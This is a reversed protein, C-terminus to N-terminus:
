RCLPFSALPSSRTTFLFSPFFPFPVPGLFSSPRPFLILRHSSSPFVILSLPFSVILILRSVILRLSTVLPFHKGSTCSRFVSEAQYLKFFISRSLPSFCNRQSLKGFHKWVSSLSSVSNRSNLKWSVFM